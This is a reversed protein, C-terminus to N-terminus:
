RLGGGQGAARNLERHQVYVAYGSEALYAALHNTLVVSRHQGGTCGIAILLSNKGEAVYFPLLFGLLDTFKAIFQRTVPFAMVYDIVQPNYGNEAKLEAIYFPNPLFRVDIVLDADLPLGAKYGFSMLGVRLGRNSGADGYLSYLRERIDKAQMESTDIIVGAEGRVERLMEQERHMATLLGGDGALPHARRSEKYRRILVEESAELYVVECHKQRNKLQQWYGSWDDVFDASRIDIGVAIRKLKGQMQLSLDLFKDLLAPPLNDICYFGMDELCNLATSKGAGSLGTIILVQFDLASSLVEKEM